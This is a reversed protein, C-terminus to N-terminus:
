NSSSPVIAAWSSASLSSFVLCLNQLWWPVTGGCVAALGLHFNYACQLTGDETHMTDRFIFYPSSLTLALVWIVATMFSALQLTRHNLSWVPHVVTVCRDISIATLFFVSAFMNLFSVVTDLKCMLRGLIWSELAVYTIESSLCIAFLFDAVALNLYWMTTVTKKLHFGTLFIVLGNGATGMLLVISYIAVSVMKMVGSLHPIHYSPESPWDEDWSFNYIDNNNFSSPFGDYSLLSLSDM